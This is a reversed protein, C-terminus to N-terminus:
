GLSIGHRAQLDPLWDMRFELAFQQAVPMSAAPDPRGGLMTSEGEDARILYPHSAPAM